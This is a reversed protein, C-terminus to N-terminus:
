CGIVQRLRPAYDGGKTLSQALGPKDLAPVERDSEPPRITAVVPQRRQGSLEDVQGHCQNKGAPPGGVAKATLAAVDVIGMTKEATLSGTSIPTTGLRLLGRPLMDPM